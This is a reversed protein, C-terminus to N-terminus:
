PREAERLRINIGRRQMWEVQRALKERLSKSEEAFRKTAPLSISSCGGTVPQRNQMAVM